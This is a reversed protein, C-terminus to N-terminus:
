PTPVSWAEVVRRLAVAASPNGAEDYAAAEALLMAVADTLNIYVGESPASLARLMVAEDGTESVPAETEPETRLIPAPQWLRMGPGYEREDTSYREDGLEFVDLGPWLRQAQEFAGEKNVDGPAVEVLQGLENVLRGYWRGDADLCLEIRRAAMAPTEMIPDYLRTHRM